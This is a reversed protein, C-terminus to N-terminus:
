KPALNIFDREFQELTVPKGYLYGQGYNGDENCIFADKYPKEVGEAIVKLKLKKGIAIHLP